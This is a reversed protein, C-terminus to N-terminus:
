PAHPEGVAGSALLAEIEDKAYGLETLVGRTHEGLRPAHIETKRAGGSFTNARRTRRIKGESPHDEPQFFGVDALHPDVLVDDISNYRAAPVDLRDFIEVWEATTKKAAGEKQV